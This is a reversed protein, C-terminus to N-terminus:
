KEEMDLLKKLIAIGENHFSFTLNGIEDYSTEKVESLIYKILNRYDDQKELAKSIMNYDDTSINLYPTVYMENNCDVSITLCRSFAELEKTM